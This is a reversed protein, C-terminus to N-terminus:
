DFVVGHDSEPNQKYYELRTNEARTDNWACNKAGSRIMNIANANNLEANRMKCMTKLAVAQRVGCEREVQHLAFLHQAGCNCVRPFSRARLRIQDAGFFVETKRRTIGRPRSKGQYERILLARKIPGDFISFGPRTRPASLWLNLPQETRLQVV